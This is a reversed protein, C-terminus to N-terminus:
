NSSRLSFLCRQGSVETRQGPIDALFHLNPHRLRCYCARPWSVACGNLWLLSKCGESISHHRGTTDIIGDEPVCRLCGALALAFWTVHLKVRLTHEPNKCAYLTSTVGSLFCPHHILKFGKCCDSSRYTICVKVEMSCTLLGACCTPAVLFVSSAGLM